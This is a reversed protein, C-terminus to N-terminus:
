EGIASLAKGHLAGNTALAHGSYITDKGHLDTVRGGAEEIIIKLAAIDWPHVFEIAIDWSGQAVLLYHLADGYGRNYECSNVLKKFGSEYDSLFKKIDGFSLFANKLENTGSVALRKGNLFAGKGLAAHAFLGMAPMNVVGLIIKGSKELAIFSSFIDSGRIFNRTGDLPDIIWKYSSGTDPYKFEEGLFNHSPFSKKIISVIKKECERDVQTVPSKDSKREVKVDKRFHKMLIKGAEKAARAAVELEKM